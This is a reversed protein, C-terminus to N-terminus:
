GYTRWKLPSSDLEAALKRFKERSMHHICSHQECEHRACLSLIDATGFNESFCRVCLTGLSTYNDTCPFLEQCSECTDLGEPEFVIESKGLWYVRGDQSEARYSVGGLSRTHRHAAYTEKAWFNGDSTKLWSRFASYAMTFMTEGPLEYGTAYVVKRSM